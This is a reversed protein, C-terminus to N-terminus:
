HLKFSNKEHLLNAKLVSICDSSILSNKRNNIM